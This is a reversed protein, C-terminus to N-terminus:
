SSPRVVAKCRRSLRAFNEKVRAFQASRKKSRKISHTFRNDYILTGTHYLHICRRQHIWVTGNDQQRRNRSWACDDSDSINSAISRYITSNNDTGRHTYVIQIAGSTIDVVDVLGVAKKCDCRPRTIYPRHYIGKRERILSGM